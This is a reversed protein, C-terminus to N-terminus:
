REFSGWKWDDHMVGCDQRQSQAGQAGEDKPKGSGLFGLGLGLGLGLRLCLFLCLPLFGDFLDGVEFRERIRRWLQLRQNVTLFAANHQGLFKISDGARQYDVKSFM